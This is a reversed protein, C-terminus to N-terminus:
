HRSSRAPSGTFVTHGYVLRYRECVPVHALVPQEYEVTGAAAGVDPHGELHGYEHVMQKCYAAFERDDARWSPWVARNVHVVCATFAAPPVKFSNAGAPTQWSTWMAAPLSAAGPINAGSPPAEGPTGAVVAVAGACPTAGWYEAARRVAETTPDSSALVRASSAAPVAALSLLGALLLGALV